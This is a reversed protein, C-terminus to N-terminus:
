NDFSGRESNHSLLSEEAYKMSPRDDIISSDFFHSSEERM